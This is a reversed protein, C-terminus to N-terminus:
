NRSALVQVDSYLTEALSQHIKRAISFLERLTESHIKQLKRAKKKNEITAYGAVLIVSLMKATNLISNIPFLFTERIALREMPSLKLYKESRQEKLRTKLMPIGKESSQLLNDLLDSIQVNNDRKDFKPISYLLQQKGQRTVTIKRQNVMTELYKMTTKRDMDDKVAECIIRQNSDPNEEVAKLIIKEREQANLVTGTWNSQIIYVHKSYLM